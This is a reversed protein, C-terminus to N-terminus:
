PAERLRNEMWALDDGITRREAECSDRFARGFRDSVGRLEEVFSGAEARSRARLREFQDRVPNFYQNQGFVLMGPYATVLDRLVDLQEANTALAEIAREISREPDYGATDWAYDAATSLALRNLTDQRRMPNSM